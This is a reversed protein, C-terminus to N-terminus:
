VNSVIKSEGFVSKLSNVINRKYESDKLYIAEDEMDSIDFLIKNDSVIIRNVINKDQFGKYIRSKTFSTKDRIDSYMSYSLFLFLFEAILLFVVTLYKGLIFEDYILIPSLLVFLVLPVFKVLKSLYEIKYLRNFQKFLYENDQTM